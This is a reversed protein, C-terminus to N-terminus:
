ERGYANCDDPNIVIQYDYHKSRIHMATFDCEGSPSFCVKQKVSALSIGKPVRHPRYLSSRNNRKEAVIFYKDKDIALCVPRRLNLAEIQAFDWMAFLDKYVGKVKAKEYRRAINPLSISFVVIILASVLVLELLTFAKECFIM